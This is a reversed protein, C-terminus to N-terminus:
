FKRLVKYELSRIYHKRIKQNNETFKYFYTKIFKFTCKDIFTNIKRLMKTFTDLHM